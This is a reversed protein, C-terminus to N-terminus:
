DKGGSVVQKYIPGPLLNCNGSSGESTPEPSGRGGVLIGGKFNNFHGDAVESFPDQGVRDSLRTGGTPDLSGINDEELQRPLQLSKRSAFYSQNTQSTTSSTCSDRNKSTTLQSQSRTNFSVKRPTACSTSANSGRAATSLWPVKPCFVVFIRPTMKFHDRGHIPDM